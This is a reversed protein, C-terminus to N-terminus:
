NIPEIFHKESEDWYKSFCSTDKDSFNLQYMRFTVTIDKPQWQEIYSYKYQMGLMKMIKGSYPNNIDHTATIFPYGAEKIKDVVAKAAESVLGKNWFEKKLGYGLDHAPSNDLCIYGIPHNVTKLCIAYRYAAEKEYYNLYNKELFDAAENEDKVPLWPLFTNVEEDSLIEFFAQVDKKTFKRLILRETELTPTNEFKM